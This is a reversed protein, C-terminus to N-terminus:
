GVNGFTVVGLLVVRAIEHARVEYHGLFAPQHLSLVLRHECVDAALTVDLLRNQIPKFLFHHLHTHVGCPWFDCNSTFTTVLSTTLNFQPVLFFTFDLFIFVERM